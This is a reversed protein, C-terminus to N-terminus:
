VQQALINIKLGSREGDDMTLHIFEPRFAVDYGDKSLFRRALSVARVTQLVAGAGVCLLVVREAARVKNAIAGAVTAPESTHAVKMDQAETETRAVRTRTLIFSVQLKDENRFESQVTFDIKNEELFSRAVAIAKVAQNISQEGTALIVPNENNRMAFAISGAV